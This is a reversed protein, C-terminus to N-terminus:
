RVEGMTDLLDRRPMKGISIKKLAYVKGDQKRQVKYVTGFAGKGLKALVVFDKASSRPKPIAASSMRLLLDKGDSVLPLPSPRSSRRWWLAPSARPSCPCAGPKRPDELRPTPRPAEPLPYRQRRQVIAFAKLEALESGGALAAGAPLRAQARAQTARAATLPCVHQGNSRTTAPRRTSHM